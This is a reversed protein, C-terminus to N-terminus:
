VYSNKIKIYKIIAKFMDGDLVIEFIGGTAEVYSKVIALGLGHGEDTRSEDGRKFRQMIEDPNFDLPYSSINKMEIIVFNDREYAQIFVRTNSMSYKSINMLLNSFVRSMKRGDSQIYLDEKINTIITFKELETEYEALSQTILTEVNLKELIIQENGSQVKSIDFLDQTLTKLRESKKDIIAIYDKAEESLNEIQSLLKTYNIISTLPTKLDHSVNTILETKLREAKLAQEISEQIGNSMDNIGDKLHDLDKFTLTKIKHNIDGSKIKEVGIKIEYLNNLYMMVFYGLVVFLVLGILIFIISETACAGLLGIVATFVFLVILVSITMYNWIFTTMQKLIDSTFSFGITFLGKMWKLILVMLSLIISKSVITKAKINRIFSLIGELLTSFVIFGGIITYLHIVDFSLYGRTYRHILAMLVLTVLGTVVMMFFVKLEIYLRDIAYNVLNGQADKGTVIMLYGFLIIGALVLSAVKGIIDNVFVRQENWIEECTNIYQQTLGVYIDVNKNKFDSVFVAFRRIEPNMESTIKKNSNTKLHYYFQHNTKNEEMNTFKQDDIIICYDFFNNDINSDLYGKIDYSNNNIYTSTVNYLELSVNNIVNSLFYSKDFSEEFYYVESKLDNWIKLGNIGTNFAATFSVVCLIFILIKTYISYFVKKM